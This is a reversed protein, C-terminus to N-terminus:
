EDLLFKAFAKQWGEFFVAAFDAVSKPYIAVVLSPSPPLVVVQAGKAKPVQFRRKM